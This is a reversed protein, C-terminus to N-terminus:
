LAAIAKKAQDELHNVLADIQKSLTRIAVYDFAHVSGDLKRGNRHVCDHRALIAAEVDREVSSDTPFFTGKLAVVYLKSVKDFDHYLIKQLGLKFRKEAASPDAMAEALSLKAEKVFNANDVIRAKIQAHDSVLRLIKDSLYAELIAIMQSFVMRNLISTPDAGHSLLLALLDDRADEYGGVTDNAPQYRLLFDDYDDVDPEYNIEADVYGGGELSATVGGLSSVTEVVYDRGCDPCTIDHTEIADGDSMREAILNPDSVDVNEEILGDCEEATCEFQVTVNPM